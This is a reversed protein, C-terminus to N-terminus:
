SNCSSSSLAADDRRWRRHLVFWGLAAPLGTVLAIWQSTSLGLGGGRPDARLSEVVFRGPAYLALFALFISWRPHPRLLDATVPTGCWCIADVRCRDGLFALTVLLDLTLLVTSAFTPCHASFM